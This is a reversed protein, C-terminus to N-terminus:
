LLVFGGRQSFFHGVNQPPSDGNDGDHIPFFPHGFGALSKASLVVCFVLVVVSSSNM